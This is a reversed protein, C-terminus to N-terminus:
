VGYRILSIGQDLQDLARVYLNYDISNHSIILVTFIPLQVANFSIWADDTEWFSAVQQQAVFLLGLLREQLMSEVRAQQQGVRCLWRTLSHTDIWHIKFEIM